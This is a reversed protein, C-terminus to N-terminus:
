KKDKQRTKLIKSIVNFRKGDEFVLHPRFREPTRSYASQFERLKDSSFRKFYTTLSEQAM